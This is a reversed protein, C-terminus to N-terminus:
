EEEKFQQMFENAEDEQLEWSLDDLLTEARDLIMQQKHTLEDQDICGFEILINNIIDRADM